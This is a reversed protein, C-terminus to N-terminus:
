SIESVSGFFVVTSASSSVRVFDGSDVVLGITLAVTDNAPATADYLRWEAGSPTGASATVGVRYTAATSATNCIGLTGIISTASASYLTAFTGVSATGQVSIDKYVIAM